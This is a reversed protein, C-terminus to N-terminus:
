NDSKVNDKQTQYLIKGQEENLMFFWDDYYPRISKILDPVEVRSIKEQSFDISIYYDGAVQYINLVYIMGPITHVLVRHPTIGEIVETFEEKKIIGGYRMFQVAELLQQAFASKKASNKLVESSIFKGNLTMGSMIGESISILPMPVWDEGSGSFIGVNGLKYIYSSGAKHALRNGQRDTKEAILWEAMKHKENDYIIMKTSQKLLDELRNGEIEQVDLILANNIMAYFATLMENSAFYNEAEKFRWYDGERVINIEDDESTIFQVGSILAINQKTEAFAYQGLSQADAQRNYWFKACAFVIGACIAFLLTIFLSKKTM